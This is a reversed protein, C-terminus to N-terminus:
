GDQGAERDLWAFRVGATAGGAAIAAMLAIAGFEPRILFVALAATAGAMLAVFAATMARSRIVTTLEDELFRRNHRSPGDWGMAIAAPVWAYLVPLGVALYDTLGGKGAAVQRLPTLALGLFIVAMAPFLFLQSSRQAQLRERKDQPRESMWRRDSPRHMWAFIAGMVAFSFGLGASISAVAAADGTKGQGFAFGFGMALVGVIALAISSYFKRARKRVDNALEQEDM